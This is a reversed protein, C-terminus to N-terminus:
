NFVFCFWILENVDLQKKKTKEEKTRKRNTAVCCSAVDVACNAFDIKDTNFDM